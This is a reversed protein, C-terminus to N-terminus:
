CLPYFVTASMQLASVISVLFTQSRAPELRSDLAAMSVSPDVPEHKCRIAAGSISLTCVMTPWATPWHLALPAHSIAIWWQYWVMGSSAVLWHWRQTQRQLTLCRPRMHLEAGILENYENERGHIETEVKRAVLSWRGFDDRKRNRKREGEGGVKSWWQKSVNFVRM